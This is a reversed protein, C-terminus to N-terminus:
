TNQWWSRPMHSSTQLEKLSGPLLYLLNLLYHINSFSFQRYIYTSFFSITCVLQTDFVKWLISQLIDCSFFFDLVLLTSNLFLSRTHTDFLSYIIVSYIKLFLWAITHILSKMICHDKFFVVCWHFLQHCFFM